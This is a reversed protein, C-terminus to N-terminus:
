KIINLFLQEYKFLIVEKSFKKYVSKNITRPDLPTSVLYSIKNLFERENKVIFGNVGNEIIEKTGGPADYAIVPTGVACSELLANPFGETFSSLVFCNQYISDKNKKSIM